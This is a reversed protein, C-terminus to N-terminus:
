SNERVISAAELLGASDDLKCHLYMWVKGQM